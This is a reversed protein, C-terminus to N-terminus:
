GNRRRMWRTARRYGALAVADCILVLVAIAGLAVVITLSLRATM